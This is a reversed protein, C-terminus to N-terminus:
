HYFGQLQRCYAVTAFWPGSQRLLQAGALKRNPAAGVVIPNEGIGFFVEGAPVADDLFAVALVRYSIKASVSDVDISGLLREAM